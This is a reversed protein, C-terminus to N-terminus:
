KQGCNKSLKEQWIDLLSQKPYSGLIVNRNYCCATVNGDRGFYLSQFPAHCLKHQISLTRQANYKNIINKSFSTFKQALM